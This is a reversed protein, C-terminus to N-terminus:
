KHTRKFEADVETLYERALKVKEVIKAELEIDRKLAWSTLRLREPIHSVQHLELPEYGILREPTDVLAYDVSWEEADWLMM